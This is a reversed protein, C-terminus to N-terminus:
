QVEVDFTVQIDTEGGANAIDGNSVGAASKNPEHRLTITITGSEADGTVISTSLGVPNGNVDQDEYSITLNNLDSEFFFQHEDGEEQVEETINEVPSEQENLLQLSGTYNSNAVLTDNSLIPAEGGDGDLDQFRFVVPTGGGQPTLTYILTTIVEEENEIEPDDKECSTVAFLLFTLLSFLFVQKM